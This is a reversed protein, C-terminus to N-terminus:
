PAKRARWAQWIIVPHHKSKGSQTAMLVHTLQPVLACMVGFRSKDVDSYTKTVVAHYTEQLVPNQLERQEGRLRVYAPRCVVHVYRLM